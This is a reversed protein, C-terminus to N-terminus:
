FWYELPGYVIQDYEAESFYVPTYEFGVSELENNLIRLHNRTAMLLARLVEVVVVDSESLESWYRLDVVAAEQIELSVLLADIYGLAGQERYFDYESQWFPDSYEGPRQDDVLDHLAYRALLQSVARGHSREAESQGFFPHSGYADMFDHAIDKALREGNRLFILGEMAEVSLIGHPHSYDLEDVAEANLETWGDITTQALPPPTYGENTVVMCGSLLAMSLLLPVILLTNKKM